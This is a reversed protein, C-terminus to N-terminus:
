ANKLKCRSAALGVLGLGLLALSTPEPVNQWTTNVAFAGMEAYSSVDTNWFNWAGNNDQVGKWTYQSFDGFVGWIYTPADSTPLLAGMATADFGFNATIAPADAQLALVQNLNAFQFGPLLLDSMASTDVGWFTSINQWKYGTTTDTFTGDYNQVLTANAAGAAGLSMVFIAFLAAKKFFM